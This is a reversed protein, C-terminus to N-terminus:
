AKGIWSNRIWGILVRLGVLAAPVGFFIAFFLAYGKDLDLADSIPPMFMYYVAFGWAVAIWATCGLCTELGDTDRRGAV